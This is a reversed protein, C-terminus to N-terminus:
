LDRCDVVALNVVKQRSGNSTTSHLMVHLIVFLTYVAGIKSVIACLFIQNLVVSQLKRSSSVYGTYQIFM